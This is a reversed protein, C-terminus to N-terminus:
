SEKSKAYSWDTIRFGLFFRIELYYIKTNGYFKPHSKLFFLTKTVGM